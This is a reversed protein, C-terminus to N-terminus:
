KLPKFRADGQVIANFQKKFDNAKWGKATLANPASSQVGLGSDRIGLGSSAPVQAGIEAVVQALLQVIATVKAETAPNKIQAAAELQAVNADVAKFAAQVSQLNTATPYAKYTNLASALATFGNEIITVLPTLAPDIVALLSGAIPAATEADAVVTNVWSPVACAGLWLVSALLVGLFIRKM